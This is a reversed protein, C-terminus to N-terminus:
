LKKTEDDGHMMEKSPSGSPTQQEIAKKVVTGDELTISSAERMIDYNEVPFWTDNYKAFVHVEPERDVFTCTGKQTEYRRGM